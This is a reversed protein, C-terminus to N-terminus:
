ITLLPYEEVDVDTFNITTTCNELIHTALYEFGNYQVDDIVINGYCLENDSSLSVQKLSKSYQPFTDLQFQSADFDSGDFFATELNPLEFLTLDIQSLRFLREVVFYQLKVWDKGVCDFPFSEINFAVSLEFYVINQLDCIISPVVTNNALPIAYTSIAKINSIKGISEFPIYISADNYEMVFVQLTNLDSIANDVYTIPIHSTMLVLLHSLQSFMQESFYFYDQHSLQVLSDSRLVIGELNDYKIVSQEFILNTFTANPNSVNLLRCNCPYEYNFINVVKRLCYEDYFLLEPHKSAWESDGDINICKSNYQNDIFSAFFSLLIVGVAIFGWGCLSVVARRRFQLKKNKADMKDMSALIADNHVMHIKPANPVTSVSNSQTRVTNELELENNKNEKHKGNSSHTIQTNFEFRSVILRYLEHYNSESIKRGRNRGTIWPVSQLDKPKKRYSAAIKIPDLQRSFLICKRTLMCIAFLSQFVIFFNQQQLLGLSTFSFGSSDGSLFVLPFLCYLLEFITDLVFNSTM